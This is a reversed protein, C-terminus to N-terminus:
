TLIMWIKKKNPKSTFIAEFLDKDIESLVKEFEKFVDMKIQYYTKSGEEEYDYSAIEYM